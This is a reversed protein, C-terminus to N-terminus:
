HAAGDVAADFSQSQDGLPLTEQKPDFEVSIKKGVKDLLAKLPKAKDVPIPIRFRAVISRKGDVGKVHLLEPQAEIREGAIDIKHLEFAGFRKRSPKAKDQLHVVSSAGDEEREVATALGLTAFDQGVASAADDEDFGIDVDVQAERGDNSENSKILFKILDASFTGTIRM